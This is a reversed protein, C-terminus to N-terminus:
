ESAGVRRRWLDEFRVCRMEQNALHDFVLELMHMEFDFRRLSWPHWILSVYELDQALAQDTFFRHVAFEEEPTKVLGALQLEPYLPPWLLVRGPTGNYGKLVNEHWGHCPLEWLEPHGEEHYTHAQELPAPLTSHPGWARSSVYRFGAAAVEAVVSPAGRLGVDFCCGPRVGLCQHGFVEEVLEKGRVIEEHIEGPSVAPGCVPHDRFLKHSYTHSAIEFLGPEDLLEKYAQGEKELLAGVIFFTAPIRRERHIRAIQRCAELCAGPQEVDYAPVIVTM